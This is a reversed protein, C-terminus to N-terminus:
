RVFATIFAGGQSQATFTVPNHQTSYIEDFACYYRIQMVDCFYRHLFDFYISCFRNINALLPSFIAEFENM